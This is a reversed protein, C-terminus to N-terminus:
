KKGIIHVDVYASVAASLRIICSSSTVSEVFVNVNSNSTATIFPINKFTSSYSLTKSSTGSFHVRHTELEIDTISSVSM